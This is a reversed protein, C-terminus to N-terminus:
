AVAQLPRGAPLVVIAVTGEGPRSELTAEGGHARAIARALPLGLGSGGAHRVAAETGRHFREFVRELEEPAIGVGEDGIALRLAGPLSALEATVLGGRESYRVANDLLILVLQRLRDPDGQVVMRSGGFREEIRVGRPEALTRAAAVARRVVEELAVAQTATRAAGADSRAVFLLDDVLRATLAAEEAIRSLTHRYEDASKVGGRLAIEAEGRMVTLPTRLEHSVDALFRRRAEDSGRLAANAAALEATRAAVAQGLADHSAQLAARSRTVEDLMANFSSLVRGLGDRGPVTEVRRSVDGRAVAEAADALSDLPRQIRRMLVTVSLAAVVVAVVAAVKALVSPLAAAREAAREVVIGEARERDVAAHINRRFQEGIGQEFGDQLLKRAEEIRGSAALGAALELRQVMEQSDRELLALTELEAREAFNRPDLAVEAAIHRRIDAFQEQMVRRAEGPQLPLDANAFAARAAAQMLRDTESELHLHAHLVDHSLRTREMKFTAISGVWWALGACVLTLALIAGYTVILLPRFMPGEPAAPM